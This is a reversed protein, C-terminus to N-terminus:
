SLSQSTMLRLGWRPQSLRNELPPPLELSGCTQSIDLPISLTASNGPTHLFPHLDMKAIDIMAPANMAPRMTPPGM